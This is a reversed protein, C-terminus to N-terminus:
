SCLHLRGLCRRAPFGCLDGRLHQLRQLLLRLFPLSLSSIEVNWWRHHFTDAAAFGDVLGRLQDTHAAREHLLRLSNNLVRGLQHASLGATNAIQRISIPHSGAGNNKPRGSHEARDLRAQEAKLMEGCRRIARAQIRDAMKRLSDDKSQKAYSPREGAGSGCQYAATM